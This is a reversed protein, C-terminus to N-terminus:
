KYVRQSHAIIMKGPKKLCYDVAWASTGYEREAIATSYVEGVPTRWTTRKYEQGDQLYTATRM